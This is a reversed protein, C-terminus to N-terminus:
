PVENTFLTSHFIVNFSFCPFFSIESFNGSKGNQRIKDSSHKAWNQHIKDLQTKQPNFIELDASRMNLLLCRFQSPSACPLHPSPFFSIVRGVRFKLMKKSLLYQSPGVFPLPPSSFHFLEALELNWSYKTAFSQFLFQIQFIDLLCKCWPCSSGPLVSLSSSALELGAFTKIISSIQNM